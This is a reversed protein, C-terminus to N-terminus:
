HKASSVSPPFYFPGSTKFSETNFKRRAGCDLCARYSSRKTTFPRTLRKHWCGFIKSFLGIRQGFLDDTRDILSEAILNQELIGQM